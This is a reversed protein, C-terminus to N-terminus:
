PPPSEGSAVPELIPRLARYSHTWPDIRCVSKFDCYTCPTENGKRYPDVAINGALIERGMTGLMARADNLVAELAPQRILQHSNAYPEGDKKLRYSFQGSNGAAHDSDFLALWEFSFRGTHEFRKGAKRDPEEDRQRTRESEDKLRVYFMGAPVAHRGTLLPTRDAVDCLAALYAPLQLQLGAQMKLPEFKKNGSKYDMVTLCMADDRGPVPAADVRDVNGRFALTRGEGLDIEWWPLGGDEGGIGLEVAVPDFRYTRMWDIVAAVFDQLLATLSDARFIHRPQSALVGAAVRGQQELAIRAIRQRAATAPLDRWRLKDGTVEEHFQRLVEHMFTGTKRADVEFRDRERARLGATVFFQFPCAAFQELRSASTRLRDSYLRNVTIPALRNTGVAAAYSAFHELWDRLGPILFASDPFSTMGARLMTGPLESAHLCDDLQTPGTFSRVTAQPFLRCVHDVLPSRNLVRGAADRESWGLILRERARTCAIYGLYREHGLRQKLDNRLNVTATELTFRDTETLLSLREPPQPFVGENLGLVVALKLDPNRSRDVAGILVQDLAPPIVGVTLAGLGAELIPLWDRLPQQFDGFAQELNELWGSLEEFVTLHKAEDPASAAWGELTTEVDFATWLERIAAALQRGGPRDGLSERMREFPSIVRRRLAECERALAPEDPLELPRLWQAGEWGRALAVNELRDVEDLGLPTLGSKLAAFWDTLRWHYLVTHLASRTFEALPHHTVPERRDLFFPIQYRTFVRRLGAHHSELQRLLVACDRFRHGAQVFKLIERAAMVAEEEPASCQVLELERQIELTGALSSAGTTWNAELQRLIGGQEDAATEGVPLAPSRGGQPFASQFTPRRSDRGETPEHGRPADVTPLRLQGLASFRNPTLNRAMVEVSVDCREAASFAAHCRRFTQSIVSWNSLWPLAAQPESELCFALTAEECFPVLAVLLKLEQPTLEALGDLWLAEIMPAPEAGARAAETLAETAQDLLTGNDQLAHEVLWGQYQEQLLALDCLKASLGPTQSVSGAATRLAAPGVGHQQLEILQSSLLRAFGTARSSERFVGLQEHHRHLLARLVMIRGEESLVERAPVDLQGLLWTAFREFSVIRLRTYGRLEPRSLLALELQFTAQRPALLILPPGQPDAILRARLANLCRFTKGSGAPGLLFNVRMLPLDVVTM